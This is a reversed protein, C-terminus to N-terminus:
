GKMKALKRIITRYRRGAESRSLQLPYSDLNAFGHYDGVARWAHARDIPDDSIFAAILEHEPMGIYNAVNSLDTDQPQKAPMAFWAPTSPHHPNDSLIGNHYTCPELVFRYVEYLEDSEDDDPVVLLEAEPQYVGTEDVFVFYGGYDLPTADGLNSILKWTPKSM